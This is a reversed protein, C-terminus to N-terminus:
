PDAKVAHEEDSFIEDPPIWVVKGDQWIAIPNGARQHALLAQRVAEQIARDIETGDIILQAISKNVM